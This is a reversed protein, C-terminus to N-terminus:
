HRSIQKACSTDFLTKQLRNAQNQPAVCLFFQSLFHCQGNRPFGAFQFKKKHLKHRSIHKTCSTDFLTKQLRNAQNPPIFVFVSIQFKFDAVKASIRQLKMGFAPRGALPVFRWLICKWSKSCLELSHNCMRGKKCLNKPAANWFSATWSISCIEM